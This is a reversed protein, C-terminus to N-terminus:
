KLQEPEGIYEVKKDTILVKSSINGSNMLVKNNM